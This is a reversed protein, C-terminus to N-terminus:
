VRLQNAKHVAEARSKVELTEMLRVMHTQITSPAVGLERAIQKNTLGRAVLALVESQKPTLIESANTQNNTPAAGQNVMGLIQPPLYQGGALVLRIAAEVVKGTMHKPVIGAIGLELLKVMLDNDFTGSVVLIKLYPARELIGLIGQLPDAGPMQLDVIAIDFRRNCMAFTSPFDVAETIEADPWSGLVTLAIAERMMSHDDCILCSKM